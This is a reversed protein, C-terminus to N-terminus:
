RNWRANPFLRQPPPRSTGCQGNACNGQFPVSQFTPVSDQINQFEGCVPCNHNHGVGGWTHGKSYTHTHDAVLTTVVTQPPPPPVPIPSPVPTSVSLALAAEADYDTAKVPFLITLVLAISLLLRMM